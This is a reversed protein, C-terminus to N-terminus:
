SNSSPDTPNETAEKDKGLVSKVTIASAKFVLKLLYDIGFIILTGFALGDGSAMVVEADALSIGKLSAVVGVAVGIIAKQGVKKWDLDKFNVDGKKLKGLLTCGFAGLLAMQWLNNWDFGKEKEPEEAPAEEPVAPADSPEETVAPATPADATAAPADDAIVVCPVAYAGFCVFVAILLALYAKKM